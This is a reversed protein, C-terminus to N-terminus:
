ARKSRTASSPTIACCAGACASLASSRSSASRKPPSRSPARRRRPSGPSARRSRARSARGAPPAPAHVTAGFLPAASLLLRTHYGEELLVVRLIRDVLRDERHPRALVKEVAYAENANIKVFCLLLKMAAPTEVSADYRRHQRAFLDGDFPGDYCATATEFSAMAAERRALTRRALDPAGDRAALYAAYAELQEPVSDKPPPDFLSPVASPYSV